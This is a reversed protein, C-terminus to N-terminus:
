ARSGVRCRAKRRSQVASAFKALAKETDEINICADTISKGYQLHSPGILGQKGEVLNSELMAGIIARSGASIQQSLNDAVDLQRKYDGECNGHSCDVMVYPPLDNEELLEVVEEIADSSYNTRSKAGRLIVHTSKNGQTEVLVPAGHKNISFFRHSYKASVLANIAVKVNGDTRNKFGMPMQMGSALERHVQSEVTRAGIAGWSIVDGIYQPIISDLLETAAPVGIDALNVLLKRALNLGTDIDFSRDLFPDNILGKWGIKTRPKEFYVRMVIHLENKYQQILPQLWKAYEYASEIDHISCPGVIVLLRDDKGQVIDAAQQRNDRIWDLMDEDAPILQILQAPSFIPHIENGAEEKTEIDSM